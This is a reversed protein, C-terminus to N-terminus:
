RQDNCPYRSFCIPIWILVMHSLEINECSWSSLFANWWERPYEVAMCILNGHLIYVASWLEPLNTWRCWYNRSTDLVTLFLKMVRSSIETRYYGPCNGFNSSLTSSTSYIFWTFDNIVNTIMEVELSTCKREWWPLVRVISKLVRFEIINYSITYRSNYYEHPREVYEKYNSIHSTNCYYWKQELLVTKFDICAEAFIVYWLSVYLNVLHNNSNSKYIVFIVDTQLLKCWPSLM